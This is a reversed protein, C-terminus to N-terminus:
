WPSQPQRCGTPLPGRGAFAPASRVAQLHVIAFPAAGRPTAGKQQAARAAATRPSLAPDSRPRVDAPHTPADGRPLSRAPQIAIVELLVVISSRGVQSESSRETME